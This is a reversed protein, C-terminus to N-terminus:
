KVALVNEGRAIEAVCSVVVGGTREMMRMEGTKYDMSCYCQQTILFHGAVDWRLEVGGGGLLWQNSEDALPIRFRINKEAM